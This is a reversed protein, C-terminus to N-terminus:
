PVPYSTLGVPREMLWIHEWDDRIQRWTTNITRAHRNRSEQTTTDIHTMRPTLRRRVGWATVTKQSEDEEQLGLKRLIWWGKSQDEEGPLPEIALEDESKKFWNWPAVAHLIPHKVEATAPEYQDYQQYQQDMAAQKNACGVLTSFGVAIILLMTHYKM